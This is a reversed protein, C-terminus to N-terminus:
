APGLGSSVCAFGTLPYVGFSPRVGLYVWGITAGQRTIRVFRSEASGMYGAREVVDDELLGSVSTSVAEIPDQSTEADAQFDFPSPFEVTEDDRCDLSYDVFVGNPDV